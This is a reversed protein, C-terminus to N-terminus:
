VPTLEVLQITWASSKQYDEYAPYMAVPRPWM